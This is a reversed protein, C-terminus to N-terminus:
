DLSHSDAGLVQDNTTYFSPSSVSETIVSYWLSLRMFTYKRSHSETCLNTM